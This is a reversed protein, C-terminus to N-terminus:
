HVVGMYKEQYEVLLYKSKGNEMQESFGMDYCFFYVKGQNNKWHHTHFKPNFGAELLKEKRITSKGSQNFHSLLRRNLKIQNDMKTYITPDKGKNKQYHFNSKCYKNCYIKDIRGEIPESCSRSSRMFIFKYPYKNM